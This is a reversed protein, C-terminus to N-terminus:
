GAPTDATQINRTASCEPYRFCGLFPGYKGERTIFYGDCGANTCPNYEQGCEGFNCKWVPGNRSVAGVSCAKCSRRRGECLPFHECSWFVGYHGSRQLVRGGCEPCELNDFSTEPTSVEDTYEDKMLEQVFVSLDSETTILYVKKKARTLAVYFLRREEAHPFSDAAGLILQYLPDDAIGTPFGFKGRGLGFIIVYDAELGKASHVTQFAVNWGPASTRFADPIDDAIHRYRGLLLVSPDARKGKRSLYEKVKGFKSSAAGDSNKTDVKGSVIESRIRQLQDDLSLCDGNASNPGAIFCVEIPKTLDPKDSKITKNLQIPNQTVFRSAASLLKNPYRFTKDLDTRATPGFHGEFDAMIGVDSGAFRFISQWDDGVCFLRAGEVSDRLAKILGSRGQSIDQFEDVIIHTFPSRYEDNRVASAALNIMDGFDIEGTKDLEQRYKAEVWRLTRVFASARQRPLRGLAQARDAVQDLSVSTSKLLDVYRRLFDALGSQQGSERLRELLTDTPVQVLSVDHKSLLRRLDEEWTGRRHQYSYTEVLTTGHKAHLERKWKMESRYKRGNVFPATNQNEDIGFHELYIGYETLYFDPKYEGRSRSATEHEYIREYEYAVGNLSLWNAIRLEEQSKVREGNLTRLDVLALRQLYENMSDFDWEDVMESQDFVHLKRIAAKTKKDKFGLVLAEEAFRTMAVEDEALRSLSPKRGTSAGCIELGLSHFTHITVGGVGLRETIRQQLEEKAKRSYALVLIQEPMAIQRKLLYGIRAVVTSTKGTGAGAVVLNSDENHIAAEQQRETLPKSEISDFLAQHEIKERSVFEANRQAIKSPFSEIIDLLRSHQQASDRPIWPNRSRRRLQKPIPPLSSRFKSAESQSVYSDAALFTLVLDLLDKVVPSSRRVLVAEELRRVDRRRFRGLSVGDFEGDELLTLEVACVRRRAALQLKDYRISRGDPLTLATAGLTLPLRFYHRSRLLGPLIPPKLSIEM